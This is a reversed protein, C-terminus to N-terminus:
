RPEPAPARAVVEAPSLANVEAVIRAVVAGLERAQPRLGAHAGLVKGLVSKPQASGHRAAEQLAAARLAEEAEM